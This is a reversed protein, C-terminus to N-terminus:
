FFQDEQSGNKKKDRFVFALADAVIINSKKM